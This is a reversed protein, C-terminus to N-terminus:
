KINQKIFELFKIFAKKGEDDRKFVGCCELVKLFVKGVENQLIEEINGDNFSYNDKFTQLWDLHKEIEESYNNENLIYEKLLNLENNLRSPLVAHGMVEILGINEKKINHLESHPHFVGSPYEDSTINNRLVLDLQYNEGNKRAIPTITNHPTDETFAYIGVDEDKYGKWIELIDDALDIIEKKNKCELRLVSMPWKVICIKVNKYKEITISEEIPAKTLTFEYKGAQYHDHSLISGGVIPLDANSGIFYHPFIDLFDLLKIFTEKEIKMPTHSGNFVIAHENYYVYPSYQFGWEESNINIPIIRHNQRAPHNVGGAYGENEKCLFCKPYNSTVKNKQSIIDKPDKEPKSLNITIDLEGYKTNYKWKKDKKIRYTRIYDTAQSFDYYYNTAKEPSEEYCKWFKKIVESPRPTLLGMIKTDFLDRNGTTNEILKQEVAYDLMFKLIEKLNSNNKTEIIEDYSYNDICFLELLKNRTFIIDEKEILNTKLGYNLLLEIATQMDKIIM